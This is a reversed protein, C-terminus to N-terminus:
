VKSIIHNNVNIEAELYRLTGNQSISEGGGGGEEKSSTGIKGSAVAYTLAHRALPAIHNSVAIM